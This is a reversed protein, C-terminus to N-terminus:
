APPFLTLFVFTLMGGLCTPVVPMLLITLLSFVFFGAPLHLGIALGLLYPGMLPIVIIYQRLIGTLLKEAFIIRPEVPTPLLISLDSKYTYTGLTLPFSALFLMAFSINFFSILSTFLQEMDVAGRQMPTTGGVLALTRPAVKFVTIDVMAVALAVALWGLSHRINGRVFTNRVARLRMAYIILLTRM